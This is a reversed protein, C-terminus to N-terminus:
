FTNMMEHLIRYLTMADEQSLPVCACLMEPIEAAQERLALGAETIVAYVDRRDTDSRRRTVLHKVELANLV